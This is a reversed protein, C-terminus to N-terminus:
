ETVFDVDNFDEPLFEGVEKQYSSNVRVNNLAFHAAIAVNNNTLEPVEDHVLVEEGAAVEYSLGMHPNLKLIEFLGEYCGYHQIAIDILTQGYTATLIM